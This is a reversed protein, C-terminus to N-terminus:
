VLLPTAKSGCSAGGSRDFVQSKRRGCGLKMVIEDFIKVVDFILDFDGVFQAVSGYFRLGCNKAGTPVESEPKVSLAKNRRTRTDSM